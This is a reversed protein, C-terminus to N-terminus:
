KIDINHSKIGKKMENASLFALKRKEATQYKKAFCNKNARKQSQRLQARSM